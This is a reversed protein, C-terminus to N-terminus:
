KQGNLTQTHLVSGTSETPEQMFWLANYEGAVWQDVMNDYFPSGPNGSQGGPYVGFARPTPGVEVVMRWSPGHSEAIANPAQRFGGVPLNFRGFPELQALHPIFTGKHDQWSTGMGGSSELRKCMEQFSRTVIDTITERGPTSQDDWFTSATDIEMMAITRWWEPKLIEQGSGEKVLVEDWLNEYTEQLWEWCLVPAQEEKDFSFNWSELTAVAQRESDKLQSRDLNHLLLPLGEEALLSQSNLQLGQMDEVTINEMEALERNILRGRYDDFGGNYYYPYDETTSRQNASAVFGLAPNKVQPIQDKPIFGHWQNASSSGDEIFRGSERKKIPFKGNVKLAIDGERSAFVFNQAPSEYNVLAKAYDDYDRAKNLILFSELENSKPQELTVWRMAMDQLGRDNNEYVIPGFHTYKVSDLVPEARGKISIEEVVYKIPRAENDFLYANKNDDAWEIRYWDLVDQGVNTMGWAVDNNFGITIGPMGPLSVGYANVEPTKIQIEFWIAPLTLMLHPDNCLIPRGNATKAGAVAWNNSGIGEPSMPLAPHPFYEGLLQSGSDGPPLLPTFDYKVEAPIIPSQKPNREPFLFDFTDRGFAQLANTAALDQHRFNLTQAMRRAFLATKLPTWRAPAFNMLKYEVPYDKPSLQDIYANVGAVYAELLAFNQEDKSWSEVAQQAAHLIGIRRQFKDYELAREGIVESIMGGAARTAFDMQWLRNQATVYGQAFHADSMSQAFIHPVMRDDYVIKVEETLGPFTRSDFNFDSSLGANQWFGEFPSLLKGLPPINDAGFPNARNLIVALLVTFALSVIFKVVKM